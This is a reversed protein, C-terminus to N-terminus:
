EDRWLIVCGSIGSEAAHCHSEDATVPEILAHRVRIRGRRWRVAQDEGSACTREVFGPLDDRWVIDRRLCALREGIQPDGEFFATAAERVHELRGNEHRAAVAGIEDRGPVLNGAREGAM